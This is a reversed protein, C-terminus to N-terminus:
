HSCFSSPQVADNYIKSFHNILRAREGGFSVEQAAREEDYSESADALGLGYGQRPPREIVEEEDVMQEPEEEFVECENDEGEPM